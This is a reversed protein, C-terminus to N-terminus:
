YPHRESMVQGAEHEGQLGGAAAASSPDADELVVLVVDTCFSVSCVCPYYSLVLM